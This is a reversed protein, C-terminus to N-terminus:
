RFCCLPACMTRLSVVEDPSIPIEKVAITKGTAGNFSGM